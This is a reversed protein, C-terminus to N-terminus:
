FIERPDFSLGVLTPSQMKEGKTYVATTKFGAESLEMVEITQKDLDALWYEAVGHNAYIKRKIERDRHLTAPSTIEIVLDPAGQVNDETVIHSRENSIFLIDPQLVNEQSLVVDFPAFFIEGLNNKLVFERLLFELKGCVRQHATVPSPAMVLDGELLEYRKDDPMHCYDEYTFKVKVEM